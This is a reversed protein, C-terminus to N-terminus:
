RAVERHISNRGSYGVWAAILALAASILSLTLGLPGVSSWGDRSHQFANILGAIWMGALLLAFLRFGSQRIAGIIAWLLAIGGM